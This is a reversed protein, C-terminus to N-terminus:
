EKLTKEKSSYLDIFFGEWEFIHLEPTAFAVAVRIVYMVDDCWM